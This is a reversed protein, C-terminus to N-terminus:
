SGVREGEKEGLRRGEEVGERTGEVEGERDGDCAATGVAEGERCGVVGVVAAGRESAKWAVVFAGM